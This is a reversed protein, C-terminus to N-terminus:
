ATSPVRLKVGGSLKECLALLAKALARADEAVVPTTPPPVASGGCRM